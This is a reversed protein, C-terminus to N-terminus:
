NGIKDLKDYEIKTSGSEGDEKVMCEVNNLLSTIIGTKTKFNSKWRVRNGVKFGRFEGIENGWVDGEVAFYEGNIQYIKANMIFEGGPVSKVTQDVAEEISENKIRKLENKSMGAYTKIPMYNFETNVNRNSIMNVKGILKITSKSCGFILISITLFMLNKFSRKYNKTCMKKSKIEKTTGMEHILVTCKKRSLRLQKLMWKTRILKYKRCCTPYELLALFYDM